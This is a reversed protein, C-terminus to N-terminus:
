FFFTIGVRYDFGSEARKMEFPFFIEGCAKLDDKDIPM